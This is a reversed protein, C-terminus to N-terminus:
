AAVPTVEPHVQQDITHCLDLPRCRACHLTALRVSSKILNTRMRRLKMAPHTLWVSLRREESNPRSNSSQAASRVSGRLPSTMSQLQAALAPEFQYAEVKPLHNLFADAPATTKCSYALALEATRPTLIYAAAGGRDYYIRRLPYGSAFTSVASNAIIKRSSAGELNLRFLKNPLELSALVQTVHRSLVADDELVLMPHRAEAIRQWALRHSLFCAIENRSLPREWQHNRANFESQPIANAQIAEVREFPLGLQGLQQQQFAMRETAQRLNIVLAFVNM